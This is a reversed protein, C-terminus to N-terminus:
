VYGKKDGEYFTMGCETCKRYNREYKFHPHKCSYRIRHEKELRKFEPYETYSFEEDIFIDAYGITAIIARRITKHHGSIGTDGLTNRWIYGEKEKILRYEPFYKGYKERIHTVMDCHWSNEEKKSVAKMRTHHVGKIKGYGIVKYKLTLPIKM